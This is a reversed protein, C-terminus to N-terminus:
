LTFARDRLRQAEALAFNVVNEFNQHASSKFYIIKMM